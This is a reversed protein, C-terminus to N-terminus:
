CTSTYLAQIAENKLVRDTNNAPNIIYNKSYMIEEAEANAEQSFVARLSITDGDFDGGIATLYANHVRVTDIFEGPRLGAGSSLNPYEPLILPYDTFYDNGIKQNITKQTTLVKIKSPFISMFGTIPYRTVYVHKNAVVSQSVIYFLDTLTFDRKLDEKYLTLKYERGRDDKFKVPQTRAEHNKIYTHMMKKIHEDDFNDMFNKVEAGMDQLAENIKDLKQEMWAQIEYIFFPFFLTIVQSLPIGTYGFRVQTTEWTNSTVRPCSIVSRTAYDVTKGLLAQHILGTKSALQKTCYSYIENLTTQIIFNNNNALFSMTFSENSQSARILKAYMDNIEDVADVRDNNQTPKFDRLYPPIVLFKDVFLRDKPYKKLIYVKDDRTFSGTTNWKIKEWNDYLFAIGTSGKEPDEVIEGKSNISFYKTGNICQILKRNMSTIINYVVPHLFKGNLNIYGFTNQRDESGMSGFLEYSLLGDETPVNGFNFLTGNTVEPYNNKKIRTEMDVLNIKL